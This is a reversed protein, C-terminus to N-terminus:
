KNLSNCIKQNIAKVKPEDVKIVKRDYTVLGNVEEEVDTIQTYVAASFGKEILESLHNAYKIYENTVEEPTNFKVYGWNKDPLWLHDKLAMGIGGYEGLVTARQPDYLYLEPGPYNHLDLIDGCTYHNGGSAPNVLRSPDYEKTWAAIEPTKFQGWCENFPVWVGICPYSYLYDIIEKWEKRYNAESAASRIADAGTYYNHTQWEAPGRGGNPMDQWVILGLQDCYTYWRAPEVKVHKRVMNYGFDKIKQLDYVLAEDTPATYLGDPWWGQDLPGFQFIDKNNLQLRTIGNKDRRTSIKRLATYSKVQDKVKGDKYLTVEMTYLFPSEPSWLKADTPMSLEIPLGCLAAGKTVLTKGDFVKVEVKDSADTSTAVEVKIEKKDIDPTTKLHTIHQEAVPELWVTQWIGTVPTYWIGGPKEVQKGRPQEGRDAPDWVKVTLQNNGKKNLAPTIDFHFPTFGGTHEGIKIDNVWVSAKWDVAGFHLLVQKNNWASPIDFTRQYWLEQNENVTKGVGSLASEVAFPVLIEGEYTAPASEGKRTIAYNWNGNLNKWEHREMIPRPYEPLVNKPNLQEGWPTKIKDGAPKWQASALSCLASAFLMALLKKKM